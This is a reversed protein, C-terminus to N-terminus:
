RRSCRCVEKIGRNLFLRNSVPVRWPSKFHQGTVIDLLGDRNVDGFCIGCVMNDGGSGEWAFDEAIRCRGSIDGGTTSCCYMEGTM